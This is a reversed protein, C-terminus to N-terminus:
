RISEASVPQPLFVTFNRATVHASLIKFVTEASPGKSFFIYFIYLRNVSDLSLTALLHIRQLNLPVNVYFAAFLATLTFSDWYLLKLNQQKKVHFMLFIQMYYIM